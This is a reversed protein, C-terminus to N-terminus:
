GQLPDLLPQLAVPVRWSIVPHSESPRPKQLVWPLFDLSIAKVELGEALWCKGMQKNWQGHPTGQPDRSM